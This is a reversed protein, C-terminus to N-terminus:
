REYQEFIEALTIENLKALGVAVACVNRETSVGIVRCLYDSLSKYKISFYEEESFDVDIYEDLLEEDYWGLMNKENVIFVHTPYHEINCGDAYRWWGWELKWEEEPLEAMTKFALESVEWVEYKEGGYLQNAELELEAVAHRFGGGALVQIMRKMKEDMKKIDKRKGGCLPWM